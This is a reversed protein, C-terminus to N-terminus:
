PVCGQGQKRLGHISYGLLVVGAAIGAAGVGAGIEPASSTSDCPVPKDQGDLRFTCSSFRTALGASLSGIGAATLVGGVVAMAVLAGRGPGRCKNQADAPGNLAGLGQSSARPVLAVLSAQEAGPVPVPEGCAVQLDTDAPQGPPGGDDLLLGLNLRLYPLLSGQCSEKSCYFSLQRQGGAAQLTMLVTHVESSQPRGPEPALEIDLQALPADSSDGSRAGVPTVVPLGMELLSRQLELALQRTPVRLGKKATIQLTLGSQLARRLPENEDSSDAKSPASSATVCGAASDVRATAGREVLLAAERALVAEANCDGECTWSRTLIKGKAADVFFLRGDVSGGLLRGQALEPVSRARRLACKGDECNAPSVGEPLSVVTEGMQELRQRVAAAATPDAVEGRKIELLHLPARAPAQGWGSAPLACLVLAALPGTLRSSLTVSM